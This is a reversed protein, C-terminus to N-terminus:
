TKENKFYKLNYEYRRVELEILPFMNKIVKWDDPFHKKLPVLFQYKLGDFSRNFYKYDETIPIKHDNMYNVVCVRGWNYIPSMKNNYYFGYKKFLMRRNFSESARMGNCDVINCEIGIDDLVIQTSEQFTLRKIKLSDLYDTNSWPQFDQHRLYDYLMPHPMRYIKIGFHDEYMKINRECLPMDPCHYFFIPIVKIKLKLLLDLTVVSDRGCSFGLSVVKHKSLESVVDASLEKMVEKM